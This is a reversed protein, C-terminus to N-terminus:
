SIRVTSGELVRRLELLRIYMRDVLGQLCADLQKRFFRGVSPGGVARSVRKSSDTRKKIEVESLYTFM